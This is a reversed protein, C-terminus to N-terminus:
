IFVWCLLTSTLTTYVATQYIEKTEQIFIFPCNEAASTAFSHIHVIDKFLNVHIKFKKLIEGGFFSNYTFTYGM